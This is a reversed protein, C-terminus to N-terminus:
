EACIFELFADMSGEDDVVVAIGGAHNIKEMQIVQLKSCGRNAQGRRGPAKVEIGFFQGQYCGIIDPIGHVGMGNSVPSFQWCAVGLAKLKKLVMAKVRGEPTM